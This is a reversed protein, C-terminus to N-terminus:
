VGYRGRLANFNQTAETATLPRNYISFASINGRWYGGFLRTGLRLTTAVGFDSSATQATQVGNKYCTAQTASFTMTIHDYQTGNHNFVLTGSAFGSVYWRYTTGDGGGAKELRSATGDAGTAFTLVDSWDSPSNHKLWFSITCNKSTAVNPLWVYDDIGDFAISGGNTSSYTPGSLLTGTNGNNTLDAWVTGSGPYSKPNGSDLYCVLGDTVISTNYLVGM